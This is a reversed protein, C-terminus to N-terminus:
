RGLIETKINIQAEKNEGNNGNPKHILTNSPYSTCLMKQLEYETKWHQIERELEIIKNSEASKITTNLISKHSSINILKEDNVNIANEDM